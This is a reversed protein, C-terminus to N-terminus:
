RPLFSVGCQNCLYGRDNFTKWVPFREQYEKNRKMYARIEWAWWALLGLSIAMLPSKSFLWPTSALALVGGAIMELKKPKKPPAFRAALTTQSMSSSTGTFVGAGDTGLGMGNISGTSYTTGAQLVARIAQTHDSGCKPCKTAM